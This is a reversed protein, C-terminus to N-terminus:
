PRPSAPPMPSDTLRIRRWRKRWRTACAGSLVRSQSGDTAEAPQCGPRVGTLLEHLVVGLSFIDSRLDVPEGRLLEPSAYAPTLANGWAQTLSSGDTDGHLLRAVGFDLLRVEGQETVLINSPKLDRHLVQRRHAYSVADLVQM